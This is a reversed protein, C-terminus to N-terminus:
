WFLCKELDKGGGSKKWHNDAQKEKVGGKMTTKSVFSCRIKKKVLGPSSRLGM